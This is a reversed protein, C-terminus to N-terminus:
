ESPRHRGDPVARYLIFLKTHKNEFFSFAIANRVMAKTVCFKAMCFHVSGLFPIRKRQRTQLDESQDIWVCIRVIKQM